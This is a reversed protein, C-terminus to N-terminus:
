THRSATGGSISPRPSPSSNPCTPTAVHAHFRAASIATRDLTSHARTPALRLLDRLLEKAQWAAYIQKGYTGMQELEIKLLDLQAPTLEEKNRRLLKRVTYIADGHQHRHPRVPRAARVPPHGAV